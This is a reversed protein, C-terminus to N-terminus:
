SRLAILWCYMRSRAITEPTHHSWVAGGGIRVGLWMKNARYWGVGDLRLCRYFLGDADARPMLEASYCADHILASAQLDPELPYGTTLWFVRPISAGDFPFGALVELRHGPIIETAYDAALLV